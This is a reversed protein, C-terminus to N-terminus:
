YDFTLDKPTDKTVFLQHEETSYEGNKKRILTIINNENLACPVLYTQEEADYLAFVYNGVREYGYNTNPFLHNTVSERGYPFASCVEFYDGPQPIFGKLTVQIYRKQPIYLNQTYTKKREFSSYFYGIKTDVEEAPTAKPPDVSTIVSMMDSPIIYEKTNINKIDFTLSYSKSVGTERDKETELEDDKVLFFLRYKGNKDTKTEAKHRIKSYAPWKDKFYDVKVEVNALPIGNSTVIAGEVVTSEKTEITEIDFEEKQCSALSIACLVLLLIGFINKTKMVAHM